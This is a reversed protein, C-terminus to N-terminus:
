QLCEVCQRLKKHNSGVFPSKPHGNKYNISDFTQLFTKKTFKTKQWRISVLHSSSYLPPDLTLSFPPGLYHIFHRLGRWRGPPPTHSTPIGRGVWKINKLCFVQFPTIQSVLLRTKISNPDLTILGFKM